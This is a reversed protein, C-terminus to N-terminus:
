AGRLAETPSLRVARMAPYVGAVAGIVVAAVLSGAIAAPPIDVPWGRSAAFGGTIAAGVMIGAFGGLASLLLSEIIFQAAVHVRAAGLARRLGIESRRELVAIVMVNAIGVGGVLLAVAGLAIFLQTSGGVVAARAALADSPRAVNVQDPHAPDATAALVARVATVQDAQATVYIRTPSGDFDFDRAAIPFGILASRDIEPALQLPSIIGVVQFWRGGLWIRAARDVRPIGLTQAAEAGLVVAPFNVTARNLFTGSLIRGSVTALLGPDVARVALGATSISPIRDSRYVNQPLLATGSVHEVPGIRGIMGTSVAPLEAAAGGISRGNEVTLLNTGLRDIQALLRAQSSQTIGLVGVISAIGIGIGLASLTTRGRRSRLGLTGVRLADGARLRSPAVM